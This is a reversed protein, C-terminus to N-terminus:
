NEEQALRVAQPSGDTGVLLDVQIWDGARQENVPFGLAVLSGRQLRVRLIAADATDGALTGALPTFDASDGSSSAALDGSAPASVGTAGSAASTVATVNQGSSAAQRTHLSNWLSVGAVCVAAAALAWAGVLGARRVVTKRHRSRFEQLLRMEVRAPAQVDRTEAGLIRLEERASEWSEQLAACRSCINLHALAAAREGDSTVDARSFDFIIAVAEECNM